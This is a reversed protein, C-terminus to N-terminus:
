VWQAESLVSSCPADVVAWGARLRPRWIVPRSLDRPCKSPAEKRGDVNSGVRAGIRRGDGEEGTICEGVDKGGASAGGTGEIREGVAVSLGTDHVSGSVVVRAEVPDQGADASDAASLGAGVGSPTCRSTRIGMRIYWWM